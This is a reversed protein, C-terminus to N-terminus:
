ILLKFRASIGEVQFRHYTPGTFEFSGTCLSVLHLVSAIFAVKETRDQIALWRKFAVLVTVQWLHVRSHILEKKKKFIFIFSYQGCVSTYVVM